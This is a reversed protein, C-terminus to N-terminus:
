LHHNYQQYSYLILEILSVSTSISSANFFISNKGWERFDFPKSYYCRFLSPPIRLPVLQDYVKVDYVAAFGDSDPYGIFGKDDRLTSFFILLYFRFFCIETDKAREKWNEGGILYKTLTDSISSFSFFFILLDLRANWQTSSVAIYGYLLIVKIYIM